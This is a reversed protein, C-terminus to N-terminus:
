EFRLVVPGYLGGDAYDAAYRLEGEFYTSLQNKEWRDFYDTHIYWNAVTNTVTIKLRNKEKLVGSPIEFCYPSVLVTGLEVGNLEARATYCVKGLDLECCKGVYESLAEFETVYEGSGSFDSGVSNSWSGLETQVPEEFCMIEEFGDDSCTQGCKKGLMFPTVIQLEDSFSKEREAPIDKGSFFLVATEGLALSIELVGNPASLKQIKGNEMSLLFINEGSVSLRYEGSKGDERFLMVLEGNKLARRCMHLGVSNGEVSIEPILADTSHLVRGGARVFKKLVKATKPPIYANEPIVINKYVARGVSLCGEDAGLAVAIADDDIIDFDVLQEEM